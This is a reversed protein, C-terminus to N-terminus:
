LNVTFRENKEPIYLLALWYNDQVSQIKAEM